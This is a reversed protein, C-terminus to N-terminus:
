DTSAHGATLAQWLMRLATSFSMRPVAHGALVEVEALLKGDLTYRVTGVVAGEAVPAELEEPIEVTCDIEDARGKAVLLSPVEGFVMTLSPMVGDRIPLAALQVPDLHPTFSEFASFGYDLLTRCSSFRDDSTASGMSVAILHLGGREASASLCSGAGDTTGTKLGTCGEYFRVLRNTNTLATEGGRLTDMWITTFRTIDEHALLARSMLAIDYASSLHGEEDLGTPNQFVTDKMGLEAARANMQEVFADETGAVHEALAMSADNASNVAAAKLLEEVTMQEGPELWIQSGGQEAAHDSCAVMDGYSIRGDEIAEMVLLMTMIKTISAPPMQEHANMEFLFQGSGADLLVASKAPIASVQAETVVAEEQGSASTEAASEERLGDAAAPMAAWVAAAAALLLASLRYRYAKMLCAGDKEM